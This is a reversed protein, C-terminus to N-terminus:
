AHSTLRGTAPTKRRLALHLISDVGIILLLASVFLVMGAFGHLFGQGAEDGYHYTILTLALVRVFNAVFSIPIIAIALAVNRLISEHRVIHLYFLGMAELTFLTHLGACADAILLRYQGVQLIVGSRSVPYGAWYLTQDVSWSVATKMPLTLASVVPGPLPAMFIMFLLPFWMMKVAERGRLLLLLGAVVPIQSGIEFLLIDQSRGLVYLVLGACLAAYGELSAPACELRHIDLRKKWFFWLLLILIIPEHGQEGSTWLSGALDYYTPLYLVVVGLLVPSWESIAPIHPQTITQQM